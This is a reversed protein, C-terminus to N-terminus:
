RLTAPRPAFPWRRGIAIHLIVGLRIAGPWAYAVVFIWRWSATDVIRGGVIPGFIRGLLLPVGIVGVARRLRRPAPPIWTSIGGLEPLRLPSRGPQVPPRYESM